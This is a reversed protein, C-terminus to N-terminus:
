LLALVQVWNALGPQPDSSFHMRHTAEKLVSLLSSFSPSWWVQWTLAVLLRAWDRSTVSDWLEFSSLSWGTYGRLQCILSVRAWLLFTVKELDCLLNTAVNLSTSLDCSSPASCGEIRMLPLRLWGKQNSFCTKHEAKPGKRKSLFMELSPYGTEKLWM